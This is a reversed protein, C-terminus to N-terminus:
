SSTSPASSIKTACAASTSGDDDIVHVGPPLGCRRAVGTMVVDLAAPLRAIAPRPRRRRLRRVVVLALAAIRSRSLRLGRARRPRSTARTGRSSRARRRNTAFSEFGGHMPLRWAADAQRYAQQILPILDPAAALEDRYESTSGTGPSTPSSSPRSAPPAAAACGLPPADAVVFAVDHTRCAAGGRGAARADFTAYFTRAADITARADLRLSDIQVIGTDCPATWASSVAVDITRELLWRAVATRVLLIRRGAASARARQRDRDPALCPRLWPRSIYFAVTPM